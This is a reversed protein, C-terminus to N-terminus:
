KSFLEKYISRMADVQGRDNKDAEAMVQAAVERGSKQDGGKFLAQAIAMRLRPDTADKSVRLGEAVRRADAWQENASFFKLGEFLMTTDTPALELAKWMYERARAIEKLRLFIYALKFSFTPVSQFKRAGEKLVGISTDVAGQAELVAASGLYVEPYEVGNNFCSEVAVSLRDFRKAAFYVECALKCGREGKVIRYFVPDLAEAALASFGKKMHQEARNMSYMEHLRAAGIVAACTLVAFSLVRLYKGSKRPKKPAKKMQM